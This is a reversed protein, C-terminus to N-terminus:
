NHLITTPVGGIPKAMKGIPPTKKHVLMGGLHPLWDGLTCGGRNPPVMYEIPPMALSLPYASGVKPTTSFLSM